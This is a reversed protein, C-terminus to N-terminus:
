RRATQAIHHMAVLFPLPRLSRAYCDIVLGLGGLLLVLLWWPLAIM